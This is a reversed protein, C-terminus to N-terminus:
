ALSLAARASVANHVGLVDDVIVGRMGMTLQNLSYAGDNNREGYSMFLLGQAAFDRLMSADPIVHSLLVVGALKLDVALKKAAELSNRREDEYKIVGADTLMMLPYVPNLESVITCADPSFSSLVIKRGASCHQDLCAMIAAIRDELEKREVHTHEDEFKLELNIGVYIPLGKLVTELTPLEDEQRCVWPRFEDSKKDFKRMLVVPREPCVTAMYSLQKFEAITMERITRTMVKEEEGFHKYHIWDDHWVVPVGDKTVQVDLEVFDAGCTAATKFSLMTNERIRGAFYGELTDLSKPGLNSGLGRHGIVADAKPLYCEPAKSSPPSPSLSPDQEHLRCPASAIRSVAKAPSPPPSSRRQHLM